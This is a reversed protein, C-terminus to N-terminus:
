NNISYIYNTDINVNESCFDLTITLVLMGVHASRTVKAAHSPQKTPLFSDRAKCVNPEVKVAGTPQM